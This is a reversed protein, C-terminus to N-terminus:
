STPEAVEATQTYECNHIRKERWRRFSIPTDNRGMKQRAYYKEKGHAVKEWCSKATPEEKRRRNKKASRGGPCPVRV